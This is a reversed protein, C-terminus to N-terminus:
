LKSIACEFNHHIHYLEMHPQHTASHTMIPLKATYFNVQHRRGYALLPGEFFVM